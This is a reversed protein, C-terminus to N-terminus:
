LKWHGRELMDFKSEHSQLMDAHEHKAERLIEVERELVKIRQSDVALTVRVSIWAGVAGGLTGGMTCFAIIWSNEM